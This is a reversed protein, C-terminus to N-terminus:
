WAGSSVVYQRQTLRLHQQPLLRPEIVIEHRIKGNRGSFWVHPRGHDGRGFGATEPL